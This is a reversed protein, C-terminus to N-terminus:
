ALFTPDKKRNKRKQSLGIAAEEVATIVSNPLAKNGVDRIEVNSHGNTERM